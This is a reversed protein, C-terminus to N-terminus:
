TSHWDSRARWLSICVTAWSCTRLPASEGVHLLCRYGARRRQPRDEGSTPHSGQTRADNTGFLFLIWDPQSNIIDAVRVLGDTTTEAAVASITLSIGDTARRMALMERLIVAWSQPESTLSDGFVMVKAGKRLPLRDVMSAVAQDALLEGAAESAEKRM